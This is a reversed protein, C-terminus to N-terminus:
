LAFRVRERMVLRGLQRHLPSEAEPDHFRSPVHTADLRIAAHGAGTLGSPLPAEFTGYHLEEETLTVMEPRMPGARMNMGRLPFRDRMSAIPHVQGGVNLRGALTVRHRELMM